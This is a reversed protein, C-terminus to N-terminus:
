WTEASRSTHSIHSNTDSEESKKVGGGDKMSREPCGIGFRKDRARESSMSYADDGLSTAVPVVKWILDHWSDESKSIPEAPVLM